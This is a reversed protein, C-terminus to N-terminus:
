HRSRLTPTSTPYTRRPAIPSRFGLPGLVEFGQDALTGNVGARLLSSKGAGSVSYLLVIRHAIVLSVVEAIEADRGFFLLRDGETYPRPGVYPEREAEVGM